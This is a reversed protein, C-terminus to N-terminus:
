SCSCKPRATNKQRRTCVIVLLFHADMCVNTFFYFPSSLLMNQRHNNHYECKVDNVNTKHGRMIDLSPISDEVLNRLENRVEDIMVNTPDIRTVLIINEYFSDSLSFNTGM